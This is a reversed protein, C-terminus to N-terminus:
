MEFSELFIDSYTSVYGEPDNPVDRSGKMESLKEGFSTQVPGPNINTVHINYQSVTYRLSEMIGELAFKSGSDCLCCLMSIKDLAYLCLTISFGTYFDLAPSGRIGATSSRLTVM